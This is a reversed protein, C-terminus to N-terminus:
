PRKASVILETACRQAAHDGRLTVRIEPSVPLSTISLVNVHCKARLLHGFYFTDAWVEVPIPWEADFWSSAALAARCGGSLVAVAITLVLAILLRTRTVKALASRYPSRRSSSTWSATVRAKM